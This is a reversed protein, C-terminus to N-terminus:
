NGTKIIANLFLFALVLAYINLVTLSFNVRFKNPYVNDRAEIVYSSQKADTVDDLSKPHLPTPWRFYKQVEPKESFTEPNMVLPTIQVTTSYIFDHIIKM